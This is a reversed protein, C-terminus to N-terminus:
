FGKSIFIFLPLRSDEKGASSFFSEIVILFVFKAVFRSKKDIFQAL